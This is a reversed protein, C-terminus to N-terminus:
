GDFGVVGESSSSGVGTFFAVLVNIFDDENLSEIVIIARNTGM